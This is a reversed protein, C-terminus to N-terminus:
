VKSVPVFYVQERVIDFFSSTVDTHTLTRRYASCVLDPLWLLPECGPTTQVLEVHRPVHGGKVLARHNADDTHMLHDENREELVFLRVADWDDCATCLAKVLGYYCRLRAIEADKDDSDVSVQHTVVCAEEGDSLFGLMDKIDDLREERLAETTHWYTRGDSRNRSAIQKLGDRLEVMSSVEVLVATLVYFTQQGQSSDKPAQYSEDLFAVPGKIRAYKQRLKGVGVHLEALGDAM